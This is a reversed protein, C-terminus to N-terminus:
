GCDGTTMVDGCGVVIVMMMTLNNSEGGVLMTATIFVSLIVVVCFKVAKSVMITLCVHAGMIAGVRPVLSSNHAREALAQCARQAISRSIVRATAHTSSGETHIATPNDHPDGDVASM